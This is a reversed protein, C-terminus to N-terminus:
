SRDLETARVCARGCALEGQSGPLRDTVVRSGSETFGDQKVARRIVTRTDLTASRPESPTDARAPRPSFYTELLLGWVGVAVAALLLQTIRSIRNTSSQM